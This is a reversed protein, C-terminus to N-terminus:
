PALRITKWSNNETKKYAIRDHLRGLGGQWFEVYYPKVLYGGWHPPKPIEVGEKYKEELQHLNKLLFDKGEIERSQPSAIAGLQSMRPRSHFYKESEKEDLKEIIGEVRVQRELEQWFFVLAASPNKTIDQGKRSLYNTYFIFGRDEFGKLLMIRASPKGDATATALTMANPETLGSSMAESFWKSFQAIPDAAVEKESLTASRYEQRLNQIIENNLTM